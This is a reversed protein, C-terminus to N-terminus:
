VTLYAGNDLQFQQGLDVTAAMNNIKRVAKDVFLELILLLNQCWLVIKYKTEILMIKVLLLIIIIKRYKKSENFRSTSRSWFKSTSWWTETLRVYKVWRDRHGFPDYTYKETNNEHFSNKKKKM